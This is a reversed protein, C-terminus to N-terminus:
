RIGRLPITPLFKRDHILSAHSPTMSHTSTPMYLHVTWEALVWFGVFVTLRTFTALSEVAGVAFSCKCVGEIRQEVPALDRGLLCLGDQLRM